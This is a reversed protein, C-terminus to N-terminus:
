LSELLLAISSTRSPKQLFHFGASLAEEKVSDDASVVVIKVDPLKNLVIKATEIGNMKPMRYDMLIVDPHIGGAVARVIESGNHRVFEVHYGLRKVLMSFMSTLDDENDVIAIRKTVKKAVKGNPGNQPVASRGWDEIKKM